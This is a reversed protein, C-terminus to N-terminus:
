ETTGLQRIHAALERCKKEEWPFLEASFPGSHSNNPDAIKRLQQALYRCEAAYVRAEYMQSRLGDARAAEARLDDLQAHLAPFLWRRLLDKM